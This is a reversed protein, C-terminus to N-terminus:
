EDEHRQLLPLLEAILRRGGDESAVPREAIVEGNKSFVVKFPLRGDKNEVIQASTRSM